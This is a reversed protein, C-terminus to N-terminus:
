KRSVYVNTRWGSQYRRGPIDGILLAGSSHPNHLPAIKLEINEM